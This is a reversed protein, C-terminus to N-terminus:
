EILVKFHPQFSRTPPTINGDMKAQPSIPKLSHVHVKWYVKVTKVTSPALM